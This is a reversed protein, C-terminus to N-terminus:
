EEITVPVGVRVLKKLKQVDENKLRICGESALTGISAPDHTGHIGIGDWKGKSLEMTNLYIFWPGYADKIEGKGDGFDHTWWSSDIIEEIKFTGNPTKMDGEKEKQGANKGLACPANFILKKEADYVKVLFASKKIVVREGQKLANGQADFVFKENEVVEKQQAVDKETKSQETVSAPNKEQASQEKANQFFGCASVCMSLILLGVM